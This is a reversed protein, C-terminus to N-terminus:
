VFIRILNSIKGLFSVIKQCQVSKSRCQMWVFFTLLLKTCIREQFNYSFPSFSGNYICINWKIQLIWSFHFINSVIFIPIFTSPKYIAQKIASFYEYPKISFVFVMMWFWFLCPARNNIPLKVNNKCNGKKRNQHIIKVCFINLYIKKLM